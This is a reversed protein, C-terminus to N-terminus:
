YQRLSNAALKFGSQTGHKDRMGTVREGIFRKINPHLKAIQSLLKRLNAYGPRPWKTEASNHRNPGKGLWDIWTIGNSNNILLEVKVTLSPATALYTIEEMDDGVSIDNEYKDRSSLHYRDKAVEHYSSIV